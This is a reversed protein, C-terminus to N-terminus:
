TRRKLQLKLDTVLSVELEQGPTVPESSEFRWLEGNVYATGALGGSEIASVRAPEGVLANATVPPGRDRSFVYGVLGVVIAMGLVLPLLIALSVHMSGSGPDILFLGGLLLSVLAAVSLLGHNIVFADTVLLGFGLMLLLM